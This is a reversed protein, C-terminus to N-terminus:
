RKKNIAEVISPAIKEASRGIVYGGLGLQIIDLLKMVVAEPLNPPTFGMWHMGIMTAFFIMTMPRWNRALLGGQSESVIIAMAAQLEQMHENHFAQLVESQAKRRLEPDEPLVRELVTNLLSSVPKILAGVLPIAM